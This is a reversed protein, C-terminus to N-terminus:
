TNAATIKRENIKRAPRCDHCFDGADNCAWGEKLKAYKRTDSVKVCAVGSEEGCGDCVLRTYKWYSM